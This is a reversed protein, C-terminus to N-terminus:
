GVGEGDDTGVSAGVVDAGVDARGVAAGVEPFGVGAGVAFGVVSGVGDGDKVGDDYAGVKVGGVGAGLDSLESEDVVMAIMEPTARSTKQMTVPRM